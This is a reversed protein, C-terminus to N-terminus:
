NCKGALRQLYLAAKETQPGNSKHENTMKCIVVRHTSLVDPSFRGLVNFINLVGTEFLWENPKGDVVPWTMKSNHKLIEDLLNEVITADETWGGEIAKFASYRDDKLPSFLGAALRSRQDNIASNASKVIESSSPSDDKSESSIIHKLLKAGFTEMGYNITEIAMTKKTEDDGTLHDLLDAALQAEQITKQDADVGKQHLFQDKQHGLGEREYYGGSFFGLIGFIVGSVAAVWEAKVNRFM